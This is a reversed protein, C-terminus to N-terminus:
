EYKELINSVRDPTVGGHTDKNVVLVPALGCAGLCRVSELTFRRDDSTGGVELDYAAQIRQMIESIGKVYCATGMCAKITHRGRPVMSFFSYFTVVGYVEIEPIGLHNAIEIMAERPLYGLRAQVKQLIPILNSRKRSFRKLTKLTEQRNWAEEDVPSVESRSSQKETATRPTM